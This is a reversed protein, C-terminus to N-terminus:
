KLEWFSPDYKQDVSIDTLKLRDRDGSLKLGGYTQYDRWPLQFRPLSDERTVYYDWQSVLYSTPDIYIHYKNEPTVGINEFSIMILEHVQGTLTSDQGAYKLTVGSDKLKFPMVLWYSDNIWIEQASQLYKSLTDPHSVLEGNISVQGKKDKLDIIMITSDQPIDIRCRENWKDWTLIRRGLFNWRLNRTQDWATRGGMAVMVSDALAIAKADSDTVNFGIAYPNTEQLTDTLTPRCSFISVLLLAYYFQRM